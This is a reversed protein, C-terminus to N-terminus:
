GTVVNEAFAFFGVLLNSVTITFFAQKMSCLADLLVVLLRFGRNVGSKLCNEPLRFLVIFYLVNFDLSSLPSLSPM